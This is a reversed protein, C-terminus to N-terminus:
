SNCSVIRTTEQTEQTKTQKNTKQGCMFIRLAINHIRSIISHTKNIFFSKVINHKLFCTLNDYKSLSKVCLLEEMKYKHTQKTLSQRKETEM